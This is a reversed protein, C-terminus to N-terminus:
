FLRWTKTGTRAVDLGQFLATTMSSAILASDWTSKTTTADSLSRTRSDLWDLKTRGREEARRVEYMFTVEHALGTPIAALGRGARICVTPWAAFRLLRSAMQRCDGLHALASM